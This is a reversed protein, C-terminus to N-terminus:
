YKPSRVRTPSCNILENLRSLLDPFTAMSGPNAVGGLYLYRDFAHILGLPPLTERQSRSTPDRHCLLTRTTVVKSLAWFLGAQTPIRLAIPYIYFLVRCQLSEFSVVATIDLQSGSGSSGTQFTVTLANALSPDYVYQAGGNGLNKSVYGLINKNPDLVEIVGSHTIMSPPPPANSPTTRRM